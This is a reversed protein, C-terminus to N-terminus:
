KCTEINQLFLIVKHKPIKRSILFPASVGGFFILFFSLSLSVYLAAFFTQNSSFVAVCRLPVCPRPAISLQPAWTRPTFDHQPGDSEAFTRTLGARPTGGIRDGLSYNSVRHNRRGQRCDFTVVRFTSSQDVPPASKRTRIRYPITKRLEGSQNGLIVSKPNLSGFFFFILFSM